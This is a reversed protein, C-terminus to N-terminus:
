SDPEHYIERYDNRIHDDHVGAGPKTCRCGPNGKNWYLGASGANHFKLGAADGCTLRPFGRTPLSSVNTEVCNHIKLASSPRDAPYLIRVGAALGGSCRSNFHLYPVAPTTKEANRLRARAAGAGKM